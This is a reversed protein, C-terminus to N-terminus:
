TIATRLCREGIEFRSCAENTVISPLYWLAGTYLCAAKGEVAVAIAETHRGLLGLCKSLNYIIRPYRRGFEIKGVCHIEANKKLGEFITIAREHEGLKFCLIAIMGLILFDTNSFLNADLRGDFIKPRASKITVELTELIMKDDGGMYADCLSRTAVIYQVNCVEGMFEDNSELQEIIKLADSVNDNTLHSDLDDKMKQLELMQSSYFYPASSHFTIGLREFLNELTWKRPMFDGREIRSLNNSDIIGEALKKQTMKHVDQRWYKILRGPHFKDM